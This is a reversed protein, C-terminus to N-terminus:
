GVGNLNLVKSSPTVVAVNLDVKKRRPRNAAKSKSAKAKSDIKRKAEEAVSVYRVSRTRHAVKKCPPDKVNHLPADVVDKGKKKVNKGKSQQEASPPGLENNKKNAVSSPTEGELMQRMVIESTDDVRLNM